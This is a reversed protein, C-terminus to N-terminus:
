AIGPHRAARQKHTLWERRRFQSLKPMGERNGTLPPGTQRTLKPGNNPWLVRMGNQAWHVTTPAGVFPAGTRCL